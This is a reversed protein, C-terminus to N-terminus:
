GGWFIWTRNKVGGTGPITWGQVWLPQADIGLPSCLVLHPPFLTKVKKSTLALIQTIVGRGRGCFSFIYGAPSFIYRNELGGVGTIQQHKHCHKRTARTCSNPAAFIEEEYTEGQILAKKQSPKAAVRAKNRGSEPPRTKADGSERGNRSNNVSVRVFDLQKQYSKNVSKRNKQM